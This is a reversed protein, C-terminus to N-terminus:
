YTDITVPRTNGSYNQQQVSVGRLGSGSQSISVDGKFGSQYIDAKFSFNNGQQNINAKNDDGVQWIIGTNNGNSQIIKAQNSNGLQNIYSFNSLQYSFSRSQAVSARNNNGQQHIISLSGNLAANDIASYQTVRASNSISHLVNENAQLVSSFILASVAVMTAANRCAKNRATQQPPCSFHKM